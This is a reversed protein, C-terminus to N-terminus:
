GDASVDIPRAPLPGALLETLRAALRPPFVRADSVALEAVTWWRYGTFGAVEAPELAAPTPEPALAALRGLRYAEEFRRVVGHVCLDVTRTWVWGDWTVEVFGTEEWLERALGQVPDEDPRLGGGPLFWAPADTALAGPRRVEPDVFAQLLVRDAPDLLLARVTPRRLPAAARTM